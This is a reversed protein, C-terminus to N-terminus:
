PLNRWMDRPNVTLEYRLWKAHGDFFTYNSGDQHRLDVPHVPPFAHTHYHPCVRCTASLSEAIMIMEAPRYIATLPGHLDLGTFNPDTPDNPNAAYGSCVYGYSGWDGHGGPKGGHIPCIFIGWNRIYPQLLQYYYHLVPGSAYQEDPHMRQRICAPVYHGDWDTAYMLAATGIQRMNSLCATQQAKARARAFVPFLIAALIAIIAIVVLLEILTFGRTRRRM